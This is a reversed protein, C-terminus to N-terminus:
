RETSYTSMGKKEGGKKQGLTSIGGRPRIFYSPIILDEKKRKRLKVGGRRKNRSQYSPLRPFPGKKREQSTPKEPKGLLPLIGKGGV